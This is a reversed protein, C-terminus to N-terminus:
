FPLPLAPLPPAVCSSRSSPMALAAAELGASSLASSLASRPGAPPDGGPVDTASRLASLLSARKSIFADPERVLLGHLFSGDPSPPASSGAADPYLRSILRPYESIGAARCNTLVPASNQLALYDVISRAPLAEGTPRPAPPCVSPALLYEFLRGDLEGKLGVSSLSRDRLHPRLHEVLLADKRLASLLDADPLPVRAARPPGPGAKPQALDETDSDPVGSDSGPAPKTYPPSGALGSSLFSIELPAAALM